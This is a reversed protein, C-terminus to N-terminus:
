GHASDRVLWAEVPSGTVSALLNPETEQLTEAGKRQTKACTLNLRHEGLQLRNASDQPLGIILDCQSELDSERSIGPGKTPNESQSGLIGVTYGM